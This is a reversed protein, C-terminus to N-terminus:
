TTKSFKHFCIIAPRNRSFEVDVGGPHSEKTVKCVPLLFLTQM